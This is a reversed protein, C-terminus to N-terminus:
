LRFNGRGKKFGSGLPDSQLQSFMTERDWAKNSGGGGVEGSFLWKLLLQTMIKEVEM